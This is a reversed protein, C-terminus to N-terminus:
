KYHNSLDLINCIKVVTESSIHEVTFEIRYKDNVRISSIGAKDGKLMEYHLSNLAYLEEVGQAQELVKIRLQYRAIINPQFRHKKDSTKGEEYLQRLYEKDFNIEMRQYNRKERCLYLYFHLIFCSSHLIM